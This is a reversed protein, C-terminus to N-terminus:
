RGEGGIKEVQVLGAILLAGVIHPQHNDGILFNCCGRTDIGYPMTETKEGTPEYWAGHFVAITGPMTRSTVYAPLHIEGFENFVRVIEGDVIERQKADSVSIWVAHRYCEDRLMPNADLCAHQRYASVPTVMALPYDKTKPNYFDDDGRRGEMYPPDYVPMPEVNGRYWSDNVMDTKEVYKSSFEVKGSPTAFPSRDSEMHNKFPYFPTNIPIRVVPQKLFEDWPKPHIHLVKEYAVVLQSWDEYAEKYLDLVADYWSEYPVDCLRPNYQDGIGLRNALQTYVWHRPRVDEPPECIKDSFLFYNRMGNPGYIFRESGLMYNDLSEFMVVIGPLVIDLYEITPQNVHWQFGWNFETMELAKIRKNTHHHVTVYQCEVIAMKINPLPANPPSGILKRYEDETIEGNDLRPRQIIAEALKQINYTIPPDYTPEAQDWNVTPFPMRAPNVLSCGTECGGPISLNGTMAQLLMAASACYEGLHRKAPAYYFQLHVPKSAAYLRALETITEKPVACISEAWEPTKAIGDTQGTVYARWKEFGEPEVWKEVYDHDYLDETYLVYAIALEMAIDTGPRIPIWQDALTEASNTYRPDIVIVKAGRERALLMYYSVPGYWGILPDIGWLIILNSNFLDPAEFGACADSEGFFSKIMDFGLHFKEGPTTGSCSNEGWAAMGVGFWPALPFGCREFVDSAHAVSYPGYKDKFEILKSAITDLAEDWSIEVFHGKGPGREGVRKMPHLLRTPATLEGKWSHGMTCPRMQVMGQKLKLEEVDERADNANITDDPLVSVLKGDKTQCKLICCSDWCGNQQCCVYKVEVDEHSKSLKEVIEEKTM